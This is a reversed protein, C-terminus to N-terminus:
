RPRLTGQIYIAVADIDRFKLGYFGWHPMGEATGTFVRKRLGDRDQAFQWDDALFSPPRLTDGQQVFGGDGAGVPGHCKQCSFSFVVAGRELAAEPSEWAITDFVAPDYMEEALMVSDAHAQRLAEGTSAQDDAPSCASAAVLAAAVIALGIRM